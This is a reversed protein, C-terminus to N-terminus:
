SNKEAIWARTFPFGITNDTGIVGDAILETLVTARLYNEVAWFVSFRGRLKIEEIIEAKRGERTRLDLLKTM